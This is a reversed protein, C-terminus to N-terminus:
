DEVKVCEASAADWRGRWGNGRWKLCNAEDIGACVSKVIKGNELDMQMGQGTKSLAACLLSSSIEFYDNSEAPVKGLEGFAFMDGDSLCAVYFSTNTELIRIEDCGSSRGLRNKVYENIFFNFKQRSEYTSIGFSQSFGGQCYQVKYKNKSCADIPVCAATNEVWVKNNSKKCLERKRDVTMEAASAAGVTLIVALSMSIIKKM